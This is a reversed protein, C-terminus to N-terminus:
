GAAVTTCSVTSCAVVAEAGSVGLLRIFINAANRLVWPLAGIYYLIQATACFLIVPPVISVVFMGSNAIDESFVFSTGYSSKALYGQAFNALWQFM